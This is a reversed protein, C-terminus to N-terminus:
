VFEAQLMPEGGSITVGGAAGFYPRYRLVNSLVAEATYEAGGKKEWADPNHCYLCRLNCGSLFAVFRIGPGDVAGLTDFSHIRGNM